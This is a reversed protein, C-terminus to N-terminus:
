TKKRGNSAHYILDQGISSVLRMLRASTESKNTLVGELFYTTLMSIETEKSLLEHEPPPWIRFTSPTELLEKRIEHAVQMMQGELSLDDWKYNM